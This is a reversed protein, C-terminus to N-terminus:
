RPYEADPNLNRYEVFTLHGIPFDCGYNFGKNLSVVSGMTDVYVQTGKKMPYLYKGNHEVGRYDRNLKFIPALRPTATVRAIFTEKKM